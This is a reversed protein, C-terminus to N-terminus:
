CASGPCCSASAARGLGRDDFVGGVKLSQLSDKQGGFTPALANIILAFVYVSVLGLIYTMVLQILGTGMDLRFTGLFPLQTGILTTKLFMAIPGLAAVILIYNTYLGATTEPEAAIVPWETKPSMLIRQAREVLKSM